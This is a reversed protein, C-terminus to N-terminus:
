NAAGDVQNAQGHFRLILMTIDDSQPEGDSFAKVQGMIGEAMRDLPQDKLMSLGQELRKQTFLDKKRNMAETVGDTYLFVTDGTGLRTKKSRYSFDGEIGLALGDTLEMSEIANNARIIYPPNHGGNCFEMEGTRIDVIGLFLTVFMYSPNEMTLDKNVSTLIDGPSCRTVAKTKNLTQIVTMFLAAPVGKGSVDGITFCLHDTDVFFFDYLDGGVQRAPELVAYIDFATGGAVTPIKKPLMGMQIDRAVQLESEIREKQATTETLNRIYEKLSGEMRAFADTLVGVEDQSRVPPLAVDLNGEAIEETAKALGRLPRTISETIMIMVALLFLFGLIGLGWVVHNLHTIDAVLEDQPFLVGLSWDSSALPAYAIWCRKGTIISTLPAFGTEGQTMAMGIQHLDSDNRTRAEDFITKNMALDIQPHTLFKGKRSILFGYGSEAIKISSVIETLWSLSIDATVVGMFRRKELTTEFFPVSYTAMVIDGGGRDYYPESWVPHGAEKPIRYWDWLFYRYSDSGLCTFKMSDGSKCWYPAPCHREHTLPHPEFAIAAGYINLNEEVIARLLDKLEEEGLPPSNELYCALNEPIKEVPLLVTDIRNVTATVLNRASEEINKEIIQRSVRYNYMFIFALIAADCILILFALKFAIGRHKLM